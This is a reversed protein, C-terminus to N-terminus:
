KLIKKHNEQENSFFLFNVTLHIKAINQFIQKPQRQPKSAELKKKPLNCGNM